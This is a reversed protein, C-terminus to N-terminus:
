WAQFTPSAITPVGYPWGPSAGSPFFGVTNNNDTTENGSAVVQNKFVNLYTLTTLGGSVYQVAAAANWTSRTYERYSEETYKWPM